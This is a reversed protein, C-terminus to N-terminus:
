TAQALHVSLEQLRVESTSVVAVLMVFEPEILVKRGVFVQVLDQPGHALCTNPKAGFYALGAELQTHTQPTCPGSMLVLQKVFFSHGLYLAVSGGRTVLVHLM